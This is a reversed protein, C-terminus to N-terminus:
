WPAILEMPFFPEFASADGEVAGIDPMCLPLVSADPIDPFWDEPVPMGFIPADPEPAEPVVGVVIGFMPVEPADPLPEGDIGAPLEVDVAPIGGM